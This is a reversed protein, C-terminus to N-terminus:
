YEFNTIAVARDGARSARASGLFNREALREFFFEVV